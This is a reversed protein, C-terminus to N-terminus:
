QSDADATNQISPPSASPGARSPSHPTASEISYMEGAARNQVGPSPNEDTSAQATSPPWMASRQAPKMMMASPSATTTLPAFKASSSQVASLMRAKTEANTPAM